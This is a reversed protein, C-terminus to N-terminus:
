YPPRIAGLRSYGALAEFRLIGLVSWDSAPTPAYDESVQETATDAPTGTIAVNRFFARHGAIETIIGFDLLVV